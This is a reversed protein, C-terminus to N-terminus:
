RVQYGQNIIAELLVGVANRVKLYPILEEGRRKFEEALTKLHVPERLRQDEADRGEFVVKEGMFQVSERKGLPGSTEYSPDKGPGSCYIMPQRLDISYTIEGETTTFLKSICSTFPKM